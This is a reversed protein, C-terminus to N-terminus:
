VAAVLAVAVGILVSGAVRNVWRGAKAEVGWRAKGALWAYGVKVGGVAVITIAIVVAADVPSVASLDLFAPFFGLYFLIAKQDALTIVLGAMFSSFLSAGAPGEEVAKPRARWLRLGLWVLYAAGLVKIWVVLGGMAEALLSLGFIAVLIYVIDGVVVGLSVFVGHVFGSGASRAAVTLVSVSPVAALVAMAAFLAAAGTITLSQM